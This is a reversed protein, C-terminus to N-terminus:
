EVEVEVEISEICKMHVYLICQVNHMYMLLYLCILGLRVGYDCGMNQWHFEYAYM